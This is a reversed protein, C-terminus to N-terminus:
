NVSFLAKILDKFFRMLQLYLTDRVYVAENARQMDVCLRSDGSPKPVVCVPSM